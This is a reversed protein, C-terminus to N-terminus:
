PSRISPRLGPKVNIASSVSPSPIPAFVAIKLATLASSSLGYGNLSASRSTKPKANRSPNSGKPVDNKSYAAKREWLWEKVLM